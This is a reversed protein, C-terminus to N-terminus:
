SAVPSRRTVLRMLVADAIKRTTSPVVKVSALQALSVQAGSPTSVIIEEIKELEDRLERPYRVLISYRERGQIVEGVNM